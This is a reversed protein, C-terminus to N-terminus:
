ALSIKILEDIKTSTDDLEDIRGADRLAIYKLSWFGLINPSLEIAKDYCNIAENYQGMISFDLGNIVFKEQESLKVKNQFLINKNFVDKDSLELLKILEGRVPEILGDILDRYIYYFNSVIDKMKANFIDINEHDEPSWIENQLSLILNQYLKFEIYKMKTIADNFFLEIEQTYLYLDKYAIEIEEDIIKESTQARENSIRSWLFNRTEDKEQKCRPCKVIDEEIIHQVNRCFNLDLEKWRTLKVVIESASSRIRDAYERKQVRERNIYMSGILGIASVFVSSATLLDGIKYEPNLTLDALNIM